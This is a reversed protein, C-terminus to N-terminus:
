VMWMNWCDSLMMGSWVPLINRSTSCKFSRRMWAAGVVLSKESASKQRRCVLIWIFNVWWEQNLDACEDSLQTFVSEGSFITDRLANRSEMLGHSCLPTLLTHNHPATWLYQILAIRRGRKLFFSLRAPDFLLPIRRISTAPFTKATMKMLLDWTSRLYTWRVWEVTKQSESRPKVLIQGIM